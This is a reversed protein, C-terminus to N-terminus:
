DIERMFKEEMKKPLFKRALERMANIPHTAQGDETDTLAHWLRHDRESVFKIEARGKRYKKPYVHHRRIETRESNRRM